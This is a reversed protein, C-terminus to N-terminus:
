ECQKKTPKYDQATIIKSANLEIKLLALHVKNGLFKRLPSPEAWFGGGGSEWAGNISAICAKRSIIIVRPIMIIILRKGPMKKKYVNQVYCFLMLSLSILEASFLFINNPIGWYIFCYCPNLLKCFTTLIYLWKQYEWLLWVDWRLGYSM